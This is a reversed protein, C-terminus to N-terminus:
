CPEPDPAFARAKALTEQREAEPDSDVVIGGGSRLSLGSGDLIGTRIPISIRLGGPHLVLIAGCYIERPEGELEGILELARRKPAGTVSGGPALAAVLGCLDWGPALRGSVEGVLHHVTPLSVLHPEATARISGPVCVRGLDNRVLDVIMVHEARDKGSEQLARAGAADVAPDAARPRTGKIPWSRALAGPGRGDVDLLTEPSNSLIWAGRISTLAGMGAPTAGRLRAYVDAVARSRPEPPALWHAHLRQSLNIQYADGRVLAEQACRVRRRYEEPSWAASLPGLPWPGARFPVVRALAARLELGASRRGHVRPLTDPGLELAAAYRRVVLGPRGPRSPLGPVMRRAALDYTCSGIWIRGPDARWLRDVVALDDFRDSEIELDPELGFFGRAEPGGDLWALGPWGGTAALALIRAPLDSENM